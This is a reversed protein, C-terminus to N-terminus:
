SVAKALQLRGAKELIPRLYEGTYSNSALALSEPTGEAVV